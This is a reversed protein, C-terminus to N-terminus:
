SARVPAKELFEQIKDLLQDFFFPKAILEDVGADRAERQLNVSDYATIMLMPQTAQEENRLVRVLEVGTLGRMHNDTLLIDAPNERWMRLGEEGDFAREVEVDPLTRLMLLLTQAISSDDEVILIRRPM